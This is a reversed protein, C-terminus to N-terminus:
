GRSTVSKPLSPVEGSANRRLRSAAAARPTTPMTSKSNPPLRWSQASRQASSQSTSRTRHAVYASVRSSTISAPRRVPSGSGPQSSRIVIPGSLIMLSPESLM